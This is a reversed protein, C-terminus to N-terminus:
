VASANTSTRLFKVWYKMMAGDRSVLWGSPQGNNLLLSDYCEYKILQDCHNSVITLAKLQSLNSIGNYIVNRAYSGAGEYGSVLTIDESDHGVVTVGIGNNAKM